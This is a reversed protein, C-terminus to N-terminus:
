HGSRRHFRSIGPLRRRQHFELQGSSLQGVRVDVSMFRNRTTSSSVLAGFTSTITRVDLDVLRYELYFPKDVGPLQLRTRARDMEDHMAHLTQDGEAESVPAQALALAPAIAPANVAPKAHNPRNAAAAAPFAVAVFLGLTLALTSLAGM